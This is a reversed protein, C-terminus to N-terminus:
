PLSVRSEIGSPLSVGLEGKALPSWNFFLRWGTRHCHCEVESELHCHCSSFGKPNSIVTGGVVAVVIEVVVVVLRGGHAATAAM